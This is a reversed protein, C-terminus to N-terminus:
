HCECHPGNCADKFQERAQDQNRMMASVRAIKAELLKQRLDPTLFLPWEDRSHKDHELKINM